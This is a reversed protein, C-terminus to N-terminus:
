CDVVEDILGLELARDPKIRTFDGTEAFAVNYYPSKIMEHWVAEHDVREISKYHNYTLADAYPDTGRHLGLLADSCMYRTQGSALINVCASGCFTDVFTDTESDQVRDSVEIASPVWGGNSELYLVDGYEIACMSMFPTIRGDIRNGAVSSCDVLDCSSLSLAALICLFSLKKYMDGVIHM